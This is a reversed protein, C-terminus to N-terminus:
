KKNKKIKKIKKIPTVKKLSKLKDMLENVSPVFSTKIPSDIAPPALFRTSPPPPPPPPPLLRPPPPIVRHEQIKPSSPYIIQEFLSIKINLNEIKKAQIVKWYKNIAFTDKTKIHLIYALEIIVSLNTGNELSKLELVSNDSSFINTNADIYLKMQIPSNEKIFLSSDSNTDFNKNLLENIKEDLSNINKILKDNNPLAINISNDRKLTLKCKDIYYWFTHMANEVMPNYIFIKTINNIYLENDYLIKNIIPYNNYNVINLKM